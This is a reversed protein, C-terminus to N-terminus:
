WASARPTWAEAKSGGVAPGHGRRGTPWSEKVSPCEFTWERDKSTRGEAWGPHKNLSGIYSMRGGPILVSVSGSAECCRQPRM